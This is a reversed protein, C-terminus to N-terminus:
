LFVSIKLRYIFLSYGKGVTIKDHIDQLILRLSVPEPYGHTFFYSVTHDPMMQGTKHSLAVSQRFFMELTSIVNNHYHSCTRFFLIVMLNLACQDVKSLKM